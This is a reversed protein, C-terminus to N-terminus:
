SWLCSLQSVCVIGCLPVWSEMYGDMTPQGVMPFQTCMFVHISATVIYFIVEEEINHKLKVKNRLQHCPKLM